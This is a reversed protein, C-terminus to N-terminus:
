LKQELIKGESGARVERLSPNHGPFTLWILREKRLNSKTMTRIVAVSFCVLGGLKDRLFPLFLATTM